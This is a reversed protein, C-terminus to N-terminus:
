HLRKAYQTNVELQKSAKMNCKYRCRSFWAIIPLLTDNLEVDARTSIKWPHLSKIWDTGIYIHEVVVRMQAPSPAAYGLSCDRFKESCRAIAIKLRM